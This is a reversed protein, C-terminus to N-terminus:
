GTVGLAAATPIVLPPVTLMEVVSAAHSLRSVLQTCTLNHNASFDPLYLSAVHSSSVM